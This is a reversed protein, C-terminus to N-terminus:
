NWKLISFQMLSETNRKNVEFRHLEDYFAGVQNQITAGVKVAVDEPSFPTTSLYDDCSMVTEGNRAYITFM